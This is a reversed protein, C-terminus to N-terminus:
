MPAITNTFTSDCKDTRSNKINILDMGTKILSSSIILIFLLIFITLFGFGSSKYSFFVSILLMLSIFGSIYVSITGFLESFISMPKPDYFQKDNITVNCTPLKTTNQTTTM